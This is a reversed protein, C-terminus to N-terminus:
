LAPDGVAPLLLIHRTPGLQTVIAEWAQSAVRGELPILGTSDLVTIILQDVWAAIWGETSGSLM